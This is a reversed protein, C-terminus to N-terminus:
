TPSMLAPSLLQAYVGRADSEQLTILEGAYVGIFRRASITERASLGVFMDKDSKHGQYM